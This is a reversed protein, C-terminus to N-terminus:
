CGKEITILFQTVTPGFIFREVRARIGAERFTNNIIEKQNEAEEINDANKADSKTLLDISPAIYKTKRRSTVVVKSNVTENATKKNNIFQNTTKKEEEKYFQPKNVNKYTQEERLWMMMCIAM